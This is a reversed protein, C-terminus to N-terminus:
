GLERFEVVEPDTPADSHTSDYRVSIVAIFARPLKAVLRPWLVNRWTPDFLASYIAASGPRGCGAAIWWTKPSKPAAAARVLLGFDRGDGYPLTADSLVLAVRRKVDFDPFQSEQIGSALDDQFVFRLRIGYKTELHRLMKETLPNIKSSAYSILSDKGTVLADLDLDSVYDPHAASWGSIVSRQSLTRLVDGVADTFRTTTSFGKERFPSVYSRNSVLRVHARSGPDFFKLHARSGSDFFKLLDGQPELLRRLKGALATIGEALAARNVDGSSTVLGSLDEYVMDRLEFPLDCAGIKVAVFPRGYKFWLSQVEYLEKKCNESKLYEPSMLCIACDSERRIGEALREYLSHGPLV